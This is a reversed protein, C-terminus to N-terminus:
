ARASLPTSGIVPLGVMSEVEGRTHITTDLRVLLAGMGAMLALGALLGAAVAILLQKSFLSQESPTQPADVVRFPALNPQQGLQLDSRTQDIKALLQVETQRAVTAADQLIALQADTSAAVSNNALNPHAALYQRVAALDDSLVKEQAQLQTEYLALQTQGPSTRAAVEAATLQTILATATGSAVQPTPGNVVLNLESPGLATVTVHAALYTRIADANPKSSNGGGLLSRFQSTFSAGQTADPHSDLYAGLPSKQAVSVAFSNSKLFQSAIDAQAQAASQTGVGGGSVWLTASSQYNAPQLAVFAATAIVAVVMPAILLLKHAFGVELARNM